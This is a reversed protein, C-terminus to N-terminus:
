WQVGNKALWYLFPFVGTFVFLILGILIFYEPTEWGSLESRNIVFSRTDNNSPIPSEGDSYFLSEKSSKYLYGHRNVIGNQFFHVTTKEQDSFKMQYESVGTTNKWRLDCVYTNYGSKAKVVNMREVYGDKPVIVHFRDLENRFDKPFNELEIRLYKLDKALVFSMTDKKEAAEALIENTGNTIKKIYCNTRDPYGVALTYTGPPGFSSPKEARPHIYSLMGDGVVTSKDPLTLSLTIGYRNLYTMVGVPHPSDLTKSGDFVGEFTKKSVENFASTIGAALLLVSM